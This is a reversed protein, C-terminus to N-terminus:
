FVEELDIYDLTIEDLISVKLEENLGYNFLHQGWHKKISDMADNFLEEELDEGATFLSYDVNDRQWAMHHAISGLLEKNETSLRFITIIVENITALHKKDKTIEKRATLKGKLEYLEKM